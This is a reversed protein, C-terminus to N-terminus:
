PTEHKLKVVHVIECEAGDANWAPIPEVFSLESHHCRITEMTVMEGTEAFVPVDFTRYEGDVGQVGIVGHERHHAFQGVKFPISRTELLVNSVNGM